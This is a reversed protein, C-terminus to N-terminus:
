LNKIIGKKAPTPKVHLSWVSKQGTKGLKKIGCEQKTTSLGMNKKVPLHFFLQQFYGKPFGRKKDFVLIQTQNKTNKSSSGAKKFMYNNTGTINGKVFFRQQRLKYSVFIDFLMTRLKSSAIACRNNRVVTRYVHFQQKYLETHESNV